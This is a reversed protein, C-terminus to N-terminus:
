IKTKVRSKAVAQFVVRFGVFAALVIRGETGLGQAQDLLATRGLGGGLREIDVWFAEVLLLFGSLRRHRGRQARGQVRGRGGLQTLQPGQGPPM